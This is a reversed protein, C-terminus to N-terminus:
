FGSQLFRSTEVHMILQELLHSETDSEVFFSFILSLGRIVIAFALKRHNQLLHRYLGIVKCRPLYLM